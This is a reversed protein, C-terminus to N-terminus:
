HTEFEKTGFKVEMEEIISKKRDLYFTMLGKGLELGTNKVMGLIFALVFCGWISYFAVEIMRELYTTSIM